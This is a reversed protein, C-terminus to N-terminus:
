APEDLGVHALMADLSRLEPVRGTSGYEAPLRTRNIWLARFGFSSAGAVDWANSSQFSVGAPAVGLKRVGFMYVRPDPKYVKIEDVSLLADLRDGLGAADVAAELMSPSGNSLIATRMGVARLADLTAAVEPYADLTRYASLLDHRLAADSAVGHLALAHDLARATLDDFREYREMLSGTWSYELQKARWTRSVSDAQAGIRAAHKAVSSHVDFLTGYADFVCVTPPAQVTTM